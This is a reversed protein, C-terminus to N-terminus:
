PLYAPDLLELPDIENAVVGISILYDSTIKTISYVSNAKRIDFLAKNDDLTYLRLNSDPRVDEANIGLYKAAIDRTEGEHQM